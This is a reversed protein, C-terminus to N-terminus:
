FYINRLYKQKSDIEWEFKTCFDIKMRENEFNLFNLYETSHFILLEKAYIFVNESAVRFKQDFMFIKTFIKEYMYTHIFVFVCANIKSCM